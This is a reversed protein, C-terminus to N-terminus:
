TLAKKNKYRELFFILLKFSNGEKSSIFNLAFVAKFLNGITSKQAIIPVNKTNM